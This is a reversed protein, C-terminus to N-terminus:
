IVKQFGGLDGKKLPPSLFGLELGYPYNLVYIQFRLCTKFYTIPVKRLLLKPVLPAFAIDRM